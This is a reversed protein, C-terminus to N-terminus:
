LFVVYGFVFIDFCRHDLFLKQAQQGAKRAAEIADENSVGDDVMDSYTSKHASSYASKKALWTERDMIPHRHFYVFSVLFLFSYSTFLLFTISVFNSGSSRRSQRRRRRRRRRRSKRGIRPRTCATKTNTTIRFRTPAFKLINPM